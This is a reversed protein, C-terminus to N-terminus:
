PTPKATSVASVCCRRGNAWAAAIATRRVCPRPIAHRDQGGMAYIPLAPRAGADCVRLLLLGGPQLAERIRRLVDSQAEAAMYHLVDLVVVADANGFESSRIDGVVLDIGPGLARRAREVDRVM